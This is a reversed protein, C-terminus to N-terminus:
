RVELTNLYELAENYADASAVCTIKDQGGRKDSYREIREDFYVTQRGCPCPDDWHLTVEDGTIFGGWRTCALLDFYAARGTQTGTRPLPASSDPDLVFPIIWPSVHYHGHDCLRSALSIESMGYFLRLKEVGFFRAVTQQWDEPAAWGKTGGAAVIVSDTAFVAEHGQAIGSAAMGHIMNWTALTWVRRGALERTKRQLFTGVSEPMTALLQELEDKRALLAPDVEVTNVQGRATAYRLRAALYLVDSSVRGEFVAHFQERGRAILKETADNQRTAMTGGSRFYPFLVDIASRGRGDEDTGFEQTFVIALLGIFMELETQSWPLFSITGSTGSTHAVRLVTRADLEAFWEDISGCRGADVGSLDCTTLRGLWTTLRDFQRGAILQSPYSKYIAHDFLLPVVDQVAGITEVRQRDALKKLMPIADRLAVFRLQLAELQLQALQGPAVQEMRTFSGAFYEIPDEVMRQAPPTLALAFDM